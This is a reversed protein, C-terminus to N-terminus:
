SKFKSIYVNLEGGLEALCQSASSIEEMILTQKEILSYIDRFQTAEFSGIDQMKGLEKNLKELDQLMLETSNIISEDKSERNEHILNKAQVQLDEMSLIIKSMNKMYGDNLEAMNASNQAMNDTDISSQYSLAALEDSFTSVKESIINLEGLFERLSYVIKQFANFMRGIEDKLDTYKEDIDQTIDLKAMQEIYNTAVKIPKSISNGLIVTLVVSIFTLIITLTISSDVMKNVPQMVEKVPAALGIDWGTFGLDTYLLFKEENDYDIISNLKNKGLYKVSVDDSYIDEVSTLGKEKSYLFEKNPHALINGNNDVLFGYGGEFPNSEDIINVIHDIAIDSALVGIIEGDIRIAKSFTVILEGHNVDVYPSSVAIGDSGIANIYWEREVINYDGEPHWLGFGRIFVNEPLAIYYEQIDPNKQNKYNFYQVLNGRHFDNKYIIEDYLENLIRAQISLWGEIEAAHKKSIEELKGYTQEKINDSLIKYSITTAFLISCICILCSILVIKGKISKM